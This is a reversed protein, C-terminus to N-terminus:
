NEGKILDPTMKIWDFDWKKPMGKPNSEKNEPFEFVPQNQHSPGSIAETSNEDFLDFNMIKTDVAGVDKKLEPNEILDFRAGIAYAPNDFTPDNPNTEDAKMNPKWPNYEMLNKMDSLNHIFKQRAKFIIARPNHSFSFLEGGKQQEMVSYGTRKRVEELFPINYSSWYGYQEINKTIDVFYVSGPIQEIMMISEKPLEKKGNALKLEEM